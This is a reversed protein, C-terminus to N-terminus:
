FAQDGENQDTVGARDCRDDTRSRCTTRSAAARSSNAQAPRSHRGGSKAGAGHAELRYWRANARYDGRHRHSDGGRWLGRDATACATESRRPVVRRIRIRRVLDTMHKRFFMRIYLPQASSPQAPTRQEKATPKEPTHMPALSCPRDRVTLRSSAAFLSVGLRDRCPTAEAKEPVCAISSRPISANPAAVSREFVSDANATAM